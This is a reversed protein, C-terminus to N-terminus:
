PSRHSMGIGNVIEGVCEADLKNLDMMNRSFLIRGIENSAVKSGCSRRQPRCSLVVEHNTALFLQRNQDIDVM